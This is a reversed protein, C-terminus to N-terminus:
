QITVNGTGDTWESVQPTVLIETAKLTITYVYHKGPEWNQGTGLTLPLNTASDSIVNGAQSKFTWAIDVNGPTQPIVVVNGGLNANDGTAGTEINKPSTQTGVLSVGNSVTVEYPTTNSSLNNWKVFDKLNATSFTIPQQSADKASGSCTVDGIMNVGNMKLSTITYARSSNSTVDDGKVLFTIWSCTHYMNVSVGNAADDKKNFTGTKPFWMLDNVGAGTGTGPNYGTITLADTNPNYSATAGSGVNGSKSYGSFYLKTENPWYQAPNGAWKGTSQKNVFEINAFYNPTNESTINGWDETFANVYMNLTTPYATGSVPAKTITNAVAVFGIEDQTQEYAIESKSCAAIASLAVFSFFIKKM